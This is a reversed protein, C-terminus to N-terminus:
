HGWHQSQLTPRQAAPRVPLPDGLSGTEGQARRSGEWQSAPAGPPNERCGRVGGEDLVEWGM